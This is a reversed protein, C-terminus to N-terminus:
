RLPKGVLIPPCRGDVRDGCHAPASPVLVLVVLIAVVVIAVVVVAAVGLLIWTSSARAPAGRIM